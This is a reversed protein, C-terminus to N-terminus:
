SFMSGIINIRANVSETSLSKEYYRHDATSCVSAAELEQLFSKAQSLVSHIPDPNTIQNILTKQLEIFKNTIFKQDESSVASMQTFYMAQMIIKMINAIYNLHKILNVGTYRAEVLRRPFFPDNPQPLAIHVEKNEQMSYLINVVGILPVQEEPITGDDTVIKGAFFWSCLPYAYQKHKEIPNAKGQVLEELNPIAPDIEPEPIQILPHTDQLGITDTLPARIRAAIKCEDLARLLQVAMSDMEDISYDSASTPQGSQCVYLSMAMFNTPNNYFIPPLNHAITQALATISIKFTIGEDYPVKIKHRKAYTSPLPDSIFTQSACFGHAVIILKSAGNPAFSRFTNQLDSRRLQWFQFMDTIFIESISDATRTPVRHYVRIRGYPKRIEDYRDTRARKSLYAKMCELGFNLVVISKYHTPMKTQEV